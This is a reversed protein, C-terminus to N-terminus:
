FNPLREDVIELQPPVPMDSRRRQHRGRIGCQQEGVRAHHLELLHKLAQLLAIVATRHRNLLAHTRAPLVVIELLHAVGRSMMCEELHQAVEREAVVELTFRDLVTPLPDRTGVVEADIGITHEDRHMMGVVLGPLEPVLDGPDALVANVTQAVFVIEPLHGIRSRTPRAALDENVDPMQSPATPRYTAGSNRRQILENIEILRPMQQLDPVEHEHLVILRLIARPRGQWCRRDIGTRARLTDGRDLLVGRRVEVRLEEQVDDLTALVHYPLLVVLTRGTGPETDQGVM